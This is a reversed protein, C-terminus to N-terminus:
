GDFEELIVVNKQFFAKDYIFLGLCIKQFGKFKPYNLIMKKNLIRISSKGTLDEKNWELVDKLTGEGNMSVGDVPRDCSICNCNKTLQKKTGAATDETRQKEQVKPKFTKFRTDIYSHLQKVEDRDLKDRISM